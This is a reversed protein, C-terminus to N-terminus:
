RGRPRRRGRVPNILRKIDDAETSVERAPDRAPPPLPERAQKAAQAEADLVEGTRPWEREFTAAIHDLEAGLETEIQQARELEGRARHV